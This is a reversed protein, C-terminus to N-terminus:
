EQALATQKLATKASRGIQSPGAQKLADILTTQTLPGSILIPKEPQNAPFIALFPITTAKNGLARLLKDIAPSTETKDAVMTVVHNERVVKATGETDLANLENLKCTFCWDATFDVLVTYQGPPWERERDPAPVFNAAFRQEMVGDLWYFSVLVACVTIFGATAWSTFKKHFDATIPTRGIWWCAVWLGFLLAVTPVIAAPDIKLLNSLLWVVTALLVFGMSQKFTEMWSGPKPLFAILRPIAGIVLYPFAMGLGVATFMAYIIWVPQNVAWALAPGLFPGTCPTALVTTLIGKAFAGSPGERSALDTAKGSGVFGPIPVEWVGLLSLAFAFVICILTITFTASSFQAGWGLGAFAAFTALALFVALMGLSYWANLAFIRKRDEGGQQVFSMIKLGIVPLVCPMINLMLGGLFGGGLALLLGIWDVTASQQPQEIKLNAANLGTLKQLKEPTFKEWALEAGAVPAPVKAAQKTEQGPELKQALAAEVARFQADRFNVAIQGPVAQDGVKVDVDFAVAKPQDCSFPSCVQYGLDGTLPYDGPKADKPTEITLTWTVPGKHYPIGGDAPKEIPSQTVPGKAQWGDPLGTLEILTPENGIELNPKPSYAYVHFPEVPEVTLMLQIAGGPQVVEPTAHGVISAHIGKHQFHGQAAPKELKATFPINEPPLCVGADGCVQVFLKGAINLKAPDVGAAIKLPAMWTVKGEHEEVNLKFAEEYHVKPKPEAQFAGAVSYQKSPELKIKSALPGGKPQTISYTHWGKAIVAQIFLRAPRDGQPATYRASVQVKPKGDNAGALGGGGLGGFVDAFDQQALLPAAGLCLCCGAAALLSRLFSM